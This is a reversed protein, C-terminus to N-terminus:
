VLERGMEYQLAFYTGDSCRIPMAGQSYRSSGSWITIREGSEQRLFAGPYPHTTARVLCDVEEVTMGHNIQGDAPTRGAWYSAESEDQVRMILQDLVLKPWMQLILDVHARNVKDYLTTATEEEDIEIEYQDLIPGTDVGEDMKFFSVGTKDLKKLIAWPIAARGRGVPLLTPHAGIVGKRPVSLMRPSVIQSWGIVFLWDIQHNLLVEEVDPDNIHNLKYLPTGTRGAIDDLYVRGSKSVAKHDHLTLLLDFHGESNL